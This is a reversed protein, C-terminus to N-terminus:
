LKLLDSGESVLSVDDSSTSGDEVSDSAIFESDDEEQSNGLSDKSVVMPNDSIVRMNPFRSLDDESVEIPSIDLVQVLPPQSICKLINGLRHHRLSLLTLRKEFLKEIESFDDLGCDDLVVEEISSSLLVLGVVVSIFSPAPEISNPRVIGSLPCGTFSIKKLVRCKYFLSSILVQTLKFVDMKDRDILSFDINEFVVSELGAPWGRSLAEIASRGLLMPRRIKVIKTSQTLQDIGDRSEIVVEMDVM